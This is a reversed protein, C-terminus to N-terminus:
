LKKYNTNIEQIRDYLVYLLVEGDNGVPYSDSFIEKIGSLSIKKPKGPKPKGKVEARLINGKKICSKIFNAVHSIGIGIQSRRKHKLIIDITDVGCGMHQNELTDFADANAIPMNPVKISVIVNNIQSFDVFHDMFNQNLVYEFHIGNINTNIINAEKLKNLHKNLYSEIIAIKAVNERYDCLLFMGDYARLSFVTKMIENQTNTKPNDSIILTKYDLLPTHMGNATSCFNGYLYKHGNPNIDVKEIATTWPNAVNGSMIRQEIDNNVIYKMLKYIDYFYEESWGDGKIYGDETCLICSLVYFTRTRKKTNKKGM